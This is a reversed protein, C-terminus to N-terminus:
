MININKILFDILLLDDKNTVLFDDCFNLNLDKLQFQIEYFHQQTVPLFLTPFQKKYFILILFDNKRQFKCVEYPSNCFNAYVNLWNCVIRFSIVLIFVKLQLFHSQSFLATIYVPDLAKAFHFIIYNDGNHTNNLSFSETLFSIIEKNPVTTKLKKEVIINKENEIKKSEISLLKFYILDEKISNDINIVTLYTSNMQTSHVIALWEQNNLFTYQLTKKNHKDLDTLFYDNSKEILVDVTDDVLLIDDIYSFGKNKLVVNWKNIIEKSYKIKENDNLFKFKPINRKIAKYFKDRNRKYLSIAEEYFDRYTLDTRTLRDTLLLRGNNYGIAIDTLDKQIKIINLKLYNLAEDPNENIGNFSKIGRFFHWDRFEKLIPRNLCVTGVMLAVFDNGETTFKAEEVFNPFNKISNYYNKDTLDKLLSIFHNVNNPQNSRYWNYQWNCAVGEHVFYSCQNMLISLISYIGKHEVAKDKSDFKCLLKEIFGWLSSDILERHASEHMKTSDLAINSSFCDLFITDSDPQVYGLVSDRITCRDKM